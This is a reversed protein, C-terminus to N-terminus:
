LCQLMFDGLAEFEWFCSDVGGLEGEGTLFGRPEVEGIGSDGKLVMGPVATTGLSGGMAVRGIFPFSCSIPM